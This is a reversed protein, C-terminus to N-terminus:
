PRSFSFDFEMGKLNEMVPVFGSLLVARNTILYCCLVVPSLLVAGSTILYRCLLV